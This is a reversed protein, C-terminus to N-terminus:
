SAPAVWRNYVNLRAVVDARAGEFTHAATIDGLTTKVAGFASEVWSRSHYGSRKKWEKLGLRGVQHLVVDRDPHLGPQATIRPPTILRSGQAQCAAYVGQTDYAGDGILTSLGLGCLLGPVQSVEGTGEGEDPTIATATIVGTDADVTCTLRIFRRRDPAKRHKRRYKDMVWPGKSRFGFGTGDILGVRGPGLDIKKFVVDGRRKCLTSFDPVLAPPLGALKFLGAMFGETARFTLKLVARLQYCANIAGSSYAPQGRKGSQVRWEDIIHTDIVIDFVNGRAVLENNYAAWDRKPRTAEVKTVSAVHPAPKGSPGLPARALRTNSSIDHLAPM